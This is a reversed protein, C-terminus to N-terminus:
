SVNLPADAAAAPGVGGGTPRGPGQPVAGGGAAAAASGAGGRGAAGRGAACRRGGRGGKASPQTRLAQLNGAVEEAFQVHRLRRMAAAALEAGETRKGDATPQRLKLLVAELEISMESRQVLADSLLQVQRRSQELQASLWAVGQPPLEATAPLAPASMAAMLQQRLEVVERRLQANEEGLPSPQQKPKAEAASSGAKVDRLIRAVDVREAAQAAAARSALAGSPAAARGAASGAPAAPRAPPAAGRPRMM